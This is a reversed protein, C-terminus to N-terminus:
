DPGSSLQDCHQHFSSFALPHKRHGDASDSLACRLQRRKVLDIQWGSFLGILDPEGAAPPRLLCMSFNLTGNRHVFSYAHSMRSVIMVMYRSCLCLSQPREHHRTDWEVERVTPTAVENIHADVRRHATECHKGDSGQSSSVNSNGAESRKLKSRHSIGTHKHASKPASRLVCASPDENQKHRRHPTRIWGQPQHKSRTASSSHRDSKPEESVETQAGATAASEDRWQVLESRGVQPRVGSEQM